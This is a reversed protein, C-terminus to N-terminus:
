LPLDKKCFRISGGLYGVIAIVLLWLLKFWYSFWDQNMVAMADFLSNITMYNFINMATIRVTAPIAQTAFLGLISCIFFFINVGGGEGISRDSKNNWCSAFFCIGSIAITVLYNGLAYYCIDSLPLSTALDNSGVAIGIMQALMASIWLALGMVTETFLLYIAETFIYSKRPTPTSLTFALSGSEIKDAVLNTATLITYVMPILINAIGFAVVGVIIGYTNMGGMESLSDGVATPLQDIVGASAKSTGIMMADATNHGNKIAENLYTKYSAIAGSTYGKVTMMMTEGDMANNEATIENISSIHPTHKQNFDDILTKEANKSVYAIVYDQIGGDLIASGDYYANQNKEDRTLFQGMFDSVLSRVTKIDESAQKKASAIEADTYDEGTLLDKHAKQALNADTGMKPQVKIYVDPNYSKVEIAKKIPTGDEAYEGTPVYTIPYGLDDTIYNVTFSPLYAYYAFSDAMSVVYSQVESSLASSQITGDALYAARYAAIEEDTPEAEPKTAAGYNFWNELTTTTNVAFDRTDGSALLKILSFGAKTKVIDLNVSQDFNEQFATDFVSKVASTADQSLNQKQQIVESFAQPIVKKLLTKTEATQDKAYLDFFDSIITRAVTKEDESMTAKNNLETDVLRMVATKATLAKTAEDGSTLRYIAKYATIASGLSSNLTTDDVLAIAQTVLSEMQNQGDDYQVYAEASGATASYVSISGSKVNSELSANNFMDTLATATSNVNLTSLIGIIIIMILANGGACVALGVRNSKLSEKFIPWSFLGRHKKEGTSKKGNLEPPLAMVVENKEMLEPNNAKIKEESYTPNSEEKKSSTAMSEVKIATEAKVQKAATKRTESSAKSTKAVPKEKKKEQPAAPKKSSVIVEKEKNKM